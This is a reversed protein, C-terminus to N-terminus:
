SFLACCTQAVGSFELTRPWIATGIGCRPLVPSLQLSLRSPSKFWCCVFLWTLECCSRNCPLSPFFSQSVGDLRAVLRYTHKNGATFPRTICTETRHTSSVSAHQQTKVPSVLVAALIEPCPVPSAFRTVVSRGWTVSLSRSRLRSRVRDSDTQLCNVPVHVLFFYSPFFFFSPCFLSNTPKKLPLGLTM